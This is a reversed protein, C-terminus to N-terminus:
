VRCSTTATVLQAIQLSYLLILELLQSVQVNGPQLRQSLQAALEPNQQLAQQLMQQQTTSANQSGSGQVPHGPLQTPIQQSLLAPAGPQTTNGESKQQYNQFM